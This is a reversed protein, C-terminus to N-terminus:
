DQRSFTDKWEILQERLDGKATVALNDAYLLKVHVPTYREYNVDSIMDGETGSPSGLLSTGNYTSRIYCSGRDNKEDAVASAIGSVAPHIMGPRNGILAARGVM